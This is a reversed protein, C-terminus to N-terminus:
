EEEEKVLITSERINKIRWWTFREDAEMGNEGYIVENDRTVIRVSADTSLRQLNRDWILYETRLTDGLENVVQVNSKAEVIKKDPYEKAYGAVIGSNELGASDYFIATIGLPMLNYREKNNAYRELKPACLLAKTSGWESYHIEVDEAWEVPVDQNPKVTRVEEPNNVCSTILM